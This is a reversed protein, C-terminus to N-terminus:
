REEDDGKTEDKDDSKADLQKRAAEVEPEDDVADVDVVDAPAETQTQAAPPADEPLFLPGSQGCGALLLFVAAAVAINRPRFSKPIPSHFDTMFDTM